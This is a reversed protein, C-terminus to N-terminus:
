IAKRKRKRALNGKLPSQLVPSIGSIMGDINYVIRESGSDLAPVVVRGSKTRKMKLSEPTSISLSHARARTFPAHHAYLNPSRTRPSMTPARLLKQASKQKEAPGVTQELSHADSHVPTSTEENPVANQSLTNKLSAVPTSQCGAIDSCSNAKEPPVAALLCKSVMDESNGASINGDELVSPMGASINGDELVSPMCDPSRSLILNSNVVPSGAELERAEPHMTDNQNGTEKFTEDGCCTETPGFSSNCHNDVNDKQQSPSSEILYTEVYDMENAVPVPRGDNAEAADEKTSIDNACAYEEFRSCETFTDADNIPNSKGDKLLNEIFPPGLTELFNGLQFKQLYFQISDDRKHIFCEPYTEMHSDWTEWWYPFGILFNECIQTSFGNERMRPLSMSGDIIVVIGDEDELTLPEHRKAIPASSFAHNKKTYGHVALKREEGEVRALWWEWLSVCPKEVPSSSPAGAVAAAGLRSRLSAASFPPSLSAAPAPPPPMMSRRSRAAASPNPTKTAMNPAAPAVRVPPATRTRHPKPSHLALRLRTSFRKKSFIQSIM